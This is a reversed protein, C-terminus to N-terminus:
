EWVKVEPVLSRLGCVVVWRGYLPGEARKFSDRESFVYVRDTNKYWKINHFGGCNKEDVECPLRISEGAM